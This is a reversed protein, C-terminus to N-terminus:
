REGKVDGCADRLTGGKRGSKKQHKYIIEKLLKLTSDSHLCVCIIDEQPVYNGSSVGDWGLNLLCQPLHLCPACLPSKGEIQGLALGDVDRIPAHLVLKLKPHM